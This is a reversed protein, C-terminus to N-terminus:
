EIGCQGPISKQLEKIDWKGYFFKGIITYQQYEEIILSRLESSKWTFSPEGQLMVVPKPPVKPM